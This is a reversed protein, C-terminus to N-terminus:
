NLMFIKEDGEIISWKQETLNRQQELQRQELLKKMNVATTRKGIRFIPRQRELPNPNQNETWLNLGPLSWFFNLEIFSVKKQVSGRMLRNKEVQEWWRRCWNELNNQYSKVLKKSGLINASRVREVKRCGRENRYSHFTQSVYRAPTDVLLPLGVPYGRFGFM